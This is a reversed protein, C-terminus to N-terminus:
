ANNNNSSKKKNMKEMFKKSLHENCIEVVLLDLNDLNEEVFDKTLDERSEITYWILEEKPHGSILNILSKTLEHHYFLTKIDKNSLKSFNAKIERIPLNKATLDIKLQTM